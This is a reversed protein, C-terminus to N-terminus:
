DLFTGISFLWNAVAEPILILILRSLTPLSQVNSMRLQIKAPTASYAPMSQLHSGKRNEPEGEEM